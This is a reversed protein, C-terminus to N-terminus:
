SAFDGYILPSSTNSNDIYLKNSGTENYGANHGIFVNNNGTNSFGSHSGLFVNNSGRVNYGSRSGLFTNHNSNNIEVSSNGAGAVEAGILTNHASFRKVVGIHAGLFTNREGGVQNEGVDDGILTNFAGYPWGNPVDPAFLNDGGWHHILEKRTTQGLVEYYSSVTLLFLFTFQYK